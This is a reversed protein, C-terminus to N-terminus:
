RQGAPACAYRGCSTDFSSKELAMVQFLVVKSSADIVPGAIPPSTMTRQLVIAARIQLEIQVSIQRTNVAM